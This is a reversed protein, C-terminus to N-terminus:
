DTLYHRRFLVTKRWYICYIILTLLVALFMFVPNIAINLCATLVGSLIGIIFCLIIQLYVLVKLSRAARKAKEDNSVTNRLGNPITHLLVIFLFVINVLPVLMMWVFWNPTVRKETPIMKVTKWLSILFFIYVPVFAIQLLLTFDTAIMNLNHVGIAIQQNLQQMTVVNNATSM